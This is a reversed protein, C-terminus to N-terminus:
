KMNDMTTQVLAAMTHVMTNNPCRASPVGEPCDCDTCQSRVAILDRKIAEMLNGLQRNLDARGAESMELLSKEVMAPPPPRQAATKQQMHSYKLRMMEARNKEQADINQVDEWWENGM